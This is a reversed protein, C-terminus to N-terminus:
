DDRRGSDTSDSRERRSSPAREVPTSTTTSPTPTAPAPAGTSTPYTPTAPAPSTTTITTVERPAKRKPAPTRTTKTTHTLSTPLLRQGATLPESALGIRQRGLQSTGWTIAAALVIGLLALLMVVATKQARNV